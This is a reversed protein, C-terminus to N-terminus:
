VNLIDQAAKQGSLFAGAATTAWEEECAEGAFFLRGGVPKALELRASQHGPKAASYSGGSLPDSEWHSVSAARPQLGPGYVSRLEGLVKQQAAETGLKEWELATQGGVLTISMDSGEPRVLHFMPSGQVQLGTDVPANLQGPPFEFAVKKLHGMQLSHIAKNKWAPLTPQFQVVDKQLVGVPLTVVVRDAELKQGGATVWCGKNSWDVRSVPTSLRVDLGESLKDVVQAMGGPAVLDSKEDIMTRFDKSSAQNLEVGVSLPGLLNRAEAAWEGQVSPLESLPRDGKTKTWLDAQRHQQEVFGASDYRTRDPQAEVGHQRAWNALPNQGPEEQHFWHAGVDFPRSFTAQDTEVRGGIRERAELVAVKKGNEQLKRAAALGAVGAGIVIADYKM